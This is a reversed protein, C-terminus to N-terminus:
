NVVEKVKFIHIPFLPTEGNGLGAEHALMVNKMVMRGESSTDLGYNISSFPVQAGARSNMTNLNHVLAEMAQFTARDTEKVTNAAVYKQIREVDEESLIALLKEREAEKYGNNNDLIPYINKEHLIEEAIRDAIEQGEDQKGMMELARAM